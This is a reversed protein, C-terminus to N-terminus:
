ERARRDANADPAGTFPSPLGEKFRPSESSSKNTREGEIEAM